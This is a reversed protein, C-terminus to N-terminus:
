YGGFFKVEVQCSETAYTEHSSPSDRVSFGCAIKGHHMSYNVAPQSTDTADTNNLLAAIPQHVNDKTWGASLLQKELSDAGQQWRHVLASTPVLKNSTRGQICSISEGFGEFEPYYCGNLDDKAFTYGFGSMTANIPTFDNQFHSHIQHLYATRAYFPAVSQRLWARSLYSATGLLCLLIIILGIIKLRKPHNSHLRKM